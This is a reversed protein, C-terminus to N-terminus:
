LGVKDKLSCADLTREFVGESTFCSTLFSVSQMYNTETNIFVKDSDGTYECPRNLSCDAQGESSDNVTTNVVAIIEKTKYDFVSSGSSGGLVNCKLQYSNKFDYVGEKIRAEGFVKCISHRLAVDDIGSAPIGINEIVQGVKPLEKSLKYATLGKSKLEQLTVGELEILAVDTSDMTAYRVIKTPYVQRKTKDEFDYYYDFTMSSTSVTSDFLVGKGPLLNGLCHGNTLIYAPSSSVKTDTDVLTGTCGGYKGVGNYKKHAEVSHSLKIWSVESSNAENDKVKKGDCDFLAKLASSRLALSCPETSVALIDDEKKDEGCSVVLFYM